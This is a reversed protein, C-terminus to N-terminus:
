EFNVYEFVIQKDGKVIKITYYGASLQFFDIINKNQSIPADMILKQNGDFVSVTGGILAKDVKFHFIYRKTSLVHVLEIPKPAAAFSPAAFLVLIVVLTKITTKM